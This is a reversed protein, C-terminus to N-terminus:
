GSVSANLVEIPHNKAKLRAALRQPYAQSQEVGYGATISDGIFLVRKPARAGAAGDAAAGAVSSAAIGEPVGAAATAITCWCMVWICVASFHTAPFGIASFRRM